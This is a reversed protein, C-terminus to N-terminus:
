PCYLSSWTVPVKETRKEDDSCPTLALTLTSWGLNLVKYNVGRRTIDNESYMADKRRKGRGACSASVKESGVPLILSRQEAGPAGKM